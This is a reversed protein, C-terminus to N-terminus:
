NLWVILEAADSMPVNAAYFLKCRDTATWTPKLLLGRKGQWVEISMDEGPYSRCLVYGATTLAANVQTNTLM